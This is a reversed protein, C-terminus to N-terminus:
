NRSAAQVQRRYEQRNESEDGVLVDPYLRQLRQMINVLDGPVTSLQLTRTDGYRDLTHLTLVGFTITAASVYKAHMWVLRESEVQLFEVMRQQSSKAHWRTFLYILLMIPIALLISVPVSYDILTAGFDGLWAEIYPTRIEMPSGWATLQTPDEVVRELTLLAKLSVACFAGLMFLAGHAFNVVGLTGFVLTLGLAILAYAGGKDLGNLIQLVIADM